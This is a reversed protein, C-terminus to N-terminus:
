EHGHGTSLIAGAKLFPATLGTQTQETGTPHSAPVTTCKGLEVATGLRPDWPVVGPEQQLLGM